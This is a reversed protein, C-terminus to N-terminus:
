AKINQVCVKVGIDLSWQASLLIKTFFLGNNKVIDISLALTIASAPTAHISFGSTDSLLCSTCTGLLKLKEHTNGFVHKRLMEVGFSELRLAKLTPFHKLNACVMEVCWHTSDPWFYFVLWASTAEFNSRFAWFRLKNLRIKQMIQIRSFFIQRM